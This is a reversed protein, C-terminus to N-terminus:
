PLKKWRKQLRRSKPSIKLGSELVRRAEKPQDMKLYLDSLQAYAMTYNPRAKIAAQYHKVAEGPQGSESLGWGWRTHLEPYLVCNNRKCNRGVYAMQTNLVGLFNNRQRGNPMGKAKMEAYIGKCYHHMHIWVSRLAPYKSKRNVGGPKAREACYAPLQNLHQQWGDEKAAAAQGSLTMGTLVISLSMLIGPHIRMKM